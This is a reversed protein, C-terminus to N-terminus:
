GWYYPGEQPNKVSVADTLTLTESLPILIELITTADVNNQNNEQQLLVSMIDVFSVQDSGYAEVQWRVNNPGYGVSTMRKITLPVNNFGLIASNLNITQGIALGSQITNFKVTYVAHGYLLIEANARAQAEAVTTIQKDVISDQIEGYAAIGAPDSQHALIPIRANGYIKILDSSVPTYKTFQIYRNTDNFLVDVTNPDTIQNAQGVVKVVGNLTVVFQNDFNYPYALSFVRKQGDGIYHDPTTSSTLLKTYLGGIVYVSNKMNTLDRDVDISPWDVMGSVDDIVFPASVNEALFFHVDKSPDVYWDWGILTALKQLCKTVPEYNFKISPVLFNGRQVNVHTYSGDTYTALINIVIDAPDMQAYNKAVLKTDMKFSWDTATYQIVPTIGGLVTTEIETVTGGFIHTSNQYVDIQDGLNPQVKGTNPKINFQCKSVEKTLVLSLQISQWEISSSIDTQVSAVTRKIQFSNPM